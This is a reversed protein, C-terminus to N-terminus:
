GQEDDSSGEEVIADQPGPDPSAAPSDEEDLQVVNTMERAQAKINQIEEASLTGHFDLNVNKTIKGHGARDLQDMCVRARLSTNAHETGDIIRGLYQEAVNANQAIQAVVSETERNAQRQLDEIVMKGMDSEIVAMVTPHTMGTENVIDTLSWGLVHLRLIDRHRTHLKKLAYAM